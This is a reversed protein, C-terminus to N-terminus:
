STQGRQFYTTRIFDLIHRSVEERPKVEVAPLVADKVMSEAMDLLRLPVYQDRYDPIEQIIQRRVATIEARLAPDFSAKSVRDALDKLLPSLVPASSDGHEKLVRHYPETPTGVKALQDLMERCQDATPQVTAGYEKLLSDLNRLIRFREQWGFYNTEETMGKALHDVVQPVAPHLQAYGERIQTSRAKCLDKVRPVNSELQEWEKFVRLREDKQRSQETLKRIEERAKGLEEKQNKV